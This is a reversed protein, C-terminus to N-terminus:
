YEKLPPPEYFTKYPIRHDFIFMFVRQIINLNFTDSCDLNLPTKIKVIPHPFKQEAGCQFHADDIFNTSNWTHALRNRSPWMPLPKQHRVSWLEMPLRLTENQHIKVIKWHPEDWGDQQCKGVLQHIEFNSDTENFINDQDFTYLVLALSSNDVFKSWFKSSGKCGGHMVGYECIEWYDVNGDFGYIMDRHAYHEIFVKMGRMYMVLRQFLQRTMSNGGFWLVKGKMLAYLEQRSYWNIPLPKHQYYPHYGHPLEEDCDYHNRHMVSEKIHMLAKRVSDRYDVRNYLTLNLYNQLCFHHNRRHQKVNTTLPPHFEGTIWYFCKNLTDIEPFLSISHNKRYEYEFNSSNSSPHCENGKWVNTAKNYHILSLLTVFFVKAIVVIGEM